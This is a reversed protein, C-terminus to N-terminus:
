EMPASSEFEPTLCMVSWVVKGAGPKTAKLKAIKVVKNNLVEDSIDYLRNIEM